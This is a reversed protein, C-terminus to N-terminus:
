SMPLSSSNKGGKSYSQKGNTKAVEEGVIIFRGQLLIAHPWIHRRCSRCGNDYSTKVQADINQPFHGWSPPQKIPVKNDDVHPRMCSAHNSTNEAVLCDLMKCQIHTRQQEDPCSTLAQALQTSLELSALKSRRRKRLGHRSQGHFNGLGIDQRQHM